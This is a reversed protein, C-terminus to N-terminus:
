YGHLDLIDILEPYLTRADYGYVNDWRRCWAVMDKLHQDSNSMQDKTLLYLCQNIESLIIRPLQNVDSENYDVACDVNTLNYEQILNKYNDIYQSRVSLPLILPDLFVPRTVNLSKVIIKNDLCYRLLTHYNGITLASIAPRATMTINSGDCHALYQKINQLVVLTDTGQRQYSNHETVTEISVEIGVRKFKKLKKILSENFSTGNSVFSFNLDTRGHALMYDVFEEFRPTLLTEGGMFHINNLEKTNALEALVRTWVTNDRTWDTGVYQKADQNGWKVEQSAITSSAQPHCMKCALNCYNGLDIHLDIPMGDYDGNNDKSSEFKDYGPSQQYSDSFNTKTFIVSKQNCKHRRSTGGVEQEYYCRGCISNPTGSFMALRAQRMPESKFWEAITM